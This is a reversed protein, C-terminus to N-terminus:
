ILKKQFGAMERFIGNEVLFIVNVCKLEKLYLNKGSQFRTKFWYKLDYIQGGYMNVSSVCLAKVRQM